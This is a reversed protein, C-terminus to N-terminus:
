KREEQKARAFLFLIGACQNKKYEKRNKIKEASETQVENEGAHEGFEVFAVSGRHFARPNGRKEDSDAGGQNACIM